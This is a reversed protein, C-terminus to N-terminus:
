GDTYYHRDNTARLDREGTRSWDSFLMSLTCYGPALATPPAYGGGGPAPRVIDSEDCVTTDPVLYNGFAMTPLTNSAEWTASFATTWSEGGDIGFRDNATEFSCDGLGRLLLNEGLRLVALDTIGDSDVDIPYAGTVASLDTVASPLVTFRLAGGVPSDNRYLAAPRSGGAFYLDDRGDGNCDFAAVGGGVFYDFGGDYTHDVGATATEDVFRPPPAASVTASSPGDRGTLAVVALGAGSLATLVAAAAIARRRHRPRPASEAQETPPDDPVSRNFWV